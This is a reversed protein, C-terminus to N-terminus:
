ARHVRTLRLAVARPDLDARRFTLAGHGSAPANPPRDLVAAGILDREEFHTKRVITEEGALLDKSQAKQGTAHLVYLEVDCARLAGSRHDLVREEDKAYELAALRPADESAEAHVDVRGASRDISALSNGHM